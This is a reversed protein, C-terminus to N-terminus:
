ITWTLLARLLVTLFPRTLARPTARSTTPRPLAEKVGAAPKEGFTPPVLLRVVTLSERDFRSM